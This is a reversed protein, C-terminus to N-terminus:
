GSPSAGTRAVRLQRANDAVEAASRPAVGLSRLRAEILEPDDGYELLAVALRHARAFDDHEVSAKTWADHEHQVEPPLRRLHRLAVDPM